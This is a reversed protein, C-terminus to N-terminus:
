PPGRACVTARSAPPGLRRVGLWTPPPLPVAAALRRQQEVCPPGPRWTIRRSEPPGPQGSIDLCENGGAVDTGPTLVGVSRRRTKEMGQLDRRTGPRVDGEVKDSAERGRLSLVSNQRDYITKRFRHVINGQRFQGGGGLHSVEEGLM